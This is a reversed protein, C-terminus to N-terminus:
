PTGGEGRGIRGSARRAATREAQEYSIGASRGRLRLWLDYAPNVERGGWERGVLVDFARLDRAVALEALAAAARRMAELMARHWAATRGAGAGSRGGVECPELRILAEPRPHGWFPYELAAAVVRVDPFRAALAAAGPRIRIEVRPDTLRGQPTIWVATRPQRRLCEGVYEVMAHLSAPDDPDIGFVGLRRFFGFTRLVAADIPALHERRPMFRRALLVALMPDWWSPHNLVVIVPGAHDAAEALLGANEKALRVAHFRRPLMWRDVYWAFVKAFRADFRAADLGVPALHSASATAPVATTPLCRETQVLTEM